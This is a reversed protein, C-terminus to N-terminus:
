AGVARERRLAEIEARLGEYPGAVMTAAQGIVRNVLAQYIDYEVAVLELLLARKRDALRAIEDGLTGDGARNAAFALIHRALDAHVPSLLDLYALWEAETM